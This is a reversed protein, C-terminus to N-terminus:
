ARPATRSCRAHGDARGPQRDRIVILNSQISVECETWAYLQPITEEAHVGRPLDIEIEVKDTTLDHISAIKVKGKQAAAEISAILSETTTGFAIERMVITKDDPPELRARVKVKGRGDDYDSM